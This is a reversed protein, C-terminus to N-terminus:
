AEGSPSTAGAGDPAEQPGALPREQQAQVQARIDDLVPAVEAYPRQMLVNAIYDLRQSNFRLTLFDNMPPM